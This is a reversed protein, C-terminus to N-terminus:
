RRRPGRGRCSCTGTSRVGSWTRSRCGRFPMARGSISWESCAPPAALLERLAGEVRKRQRDRIAKTYRGGDATVASCPVGKPAAAIMVTCAEIVLEPYLDAETQAGVAWGGLPTRADCVVVAAAAPAAFALDFLIRQQGSNMRHGKVEGEWGTAKRFSKIARRAVSPELRVAAVLFVGRAKTGGSEDCYLHM